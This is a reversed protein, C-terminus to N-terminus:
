NTDLICRITAGYTRMYDLYPYVSSYSDSILMETMTNSGYGTKAWWNGYSDIDGIGTPIDESSDGYVGGSLPLRLANRFAAYDGNNYAYYAVHYEGSNDDYSTPMRWGTPCIDETTDTNSPASSYCYSGASAACFNYYVGIRWDSDDISGTSSVDGMTHDKHTTNILPNVYSGDIVWNTSVPSRAYNGNAGGGSVGNFLANLSTASANTNQDNIRTSAGEATLDLALNELMWIRGDALKGITYSTDDRSDVVEMTQGATTLTNTISATDQMNIATTPAAASAPNVLTYKVQGTYTGAAQTPSVYTAYTSTFNAGLATVPTGQEPTYPVDTASKRYAVKTYTAPIAAYNSYDTKGTGSTEPDDDVSSGAIIPNYTTAVGTKGATLKMAWNSTAGSTATGTAIKTAAPLPTSGSIGEMYTNGNTDGTYGIAYIAFGNTDNCYVTFDTQGIPQRYVGNPVTDTHENGTAITANMTCSGPVTINVVDTYNTGEAYVNNIFYGGGVFTALSALGALSVSATHKLNYIHGKM